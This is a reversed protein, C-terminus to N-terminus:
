IGCSSDLIASWYLNDMKTNEITMYDVNIM